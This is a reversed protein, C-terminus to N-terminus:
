RYKPDFRRSGGYSEMIDLIGINSFTLLTRNVTDFSITHFDTKVAQYIENVSPHQDSKLLEKYIAIRQPTIKLHNQQCTKTFLKVLEDESLKQM